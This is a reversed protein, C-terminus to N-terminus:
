AIGAGARLSDVEDSPGFNERYRAVFADLNYDHNQTGTQEIAYVATLAGLRGVVPWSFGRAMGKVFGARFADGAGTPDLVVTPKAPPIEYETGDVTILSGAEGKTMLTIPVRNRLGAEDTGLKEAMM